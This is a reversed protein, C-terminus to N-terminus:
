GSPKGNIIIQQTGNGNQKFTYVENELEECGSLKRLHEICKGKLDDKVGNTPDAHGGTTAISKECTYIRPGIIESDNIANRLSVNVGTGGLDRVSTFGAM